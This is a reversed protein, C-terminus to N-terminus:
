FLKQQQSFYLNVIITREDYHLISATLRCHCWKLRYLSIARMHVRYNNSQTRLLM